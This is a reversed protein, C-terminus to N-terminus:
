TNYRRGDSVYWPDFDRGIILMATYYDPPGPNCESGLPSGDQRKLDELVNQSLLKLTYPGNTCTGLMDKSYM